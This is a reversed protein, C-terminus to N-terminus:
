KKLPLLGSAFALLSFGWFFFDGSPPYLEFVELLLKLGVLFVIGQASRNLHPFRETMKLFGQATFRMMIMGMAGGAYIIWLKPPIGVVGVAAIISDLALVIDTFEILILTKLFSAPKHLKPHNSFSFALYILYCAGLFELWKFHVLYSVGLVAVGRLVLASAFGAWLAKKQQDKRLHKVILAIAIANDVSLVAELFFILGLRPIDVLEFM